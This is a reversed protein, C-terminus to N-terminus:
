SDYQIKTLKWLLFFDVSKAKIPGGSCRTDGWFSSIKVFIGYGGRTRSYKRIVWGRKHPLPYPDFFSIYARM